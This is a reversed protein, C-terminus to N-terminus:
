FEQIDDYFHGGNGNLNYQMIESKGGCDRLLYYCTKTYATGFLSPQDDYGISTVYFTYEGVSLEARLKAARAKSAEKRRIDEPTSGRGGAKKSIRQMLEAQRNFVFYKTQIARAGTQTFYFLEGDIGMRIGHPANGFDFLLRAEKGSVKYLRTLHETENNRNTVYNVSLVYLVGDTIYFEQLNLMGNEADTASLPFVEETELDVGCGTKGLFYVYNGCRFYESAYYSTNLPIEHYAGDKFYTFDYSSVRYLIDGDLTGDYFNEYLLEAEASYIAGNRTRSNYLYVLSSSAAIQYDYIREAAELAGLDCADQTLYNYHYARYQEGISLVYFIEYTSRVYQYTVVEFEEESYEREEVTVSTLLTEEETGDTRSRKNGCYLWLGEAQGLEEPIVDAESRPEVSCASLLFVPLALLLAAAVTILKRFTGRM